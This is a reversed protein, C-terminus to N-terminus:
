FQLNNIMEMLEAKTGGLEMTALIETIANDRQRWLSDELARYKQVEPLDYSPVYVRATSGGTHKIGYKSYIDFLKKNCEQLTGDIENQFKKRTEDAKSKLELLPESQEMKFNVQREVFDRITKTVKM